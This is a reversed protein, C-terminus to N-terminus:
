SSQDLQIDYNYIVSLEESLLAQLSKGDRKYVWQGDSFDYRKPGSSPSSLWIQRNPTQKNIVYTGSTGGLKLTLVGDSLAVDYDPHVSLREALEELNEALKDLTETCLQDFMMESLEEKGSGTGFLKPNTVVVESPQRVLIGPVFGHPHQRVSLSVLCRDLSPKSGRNFIQLSLPRLTRCYRCLKQLSM